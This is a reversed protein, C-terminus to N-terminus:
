KGVFEKLGKTYEKARKEAFYDAGLSVVAEIALAIGLGVWFTKDLNNKFSVILGLGILLLAIEFYRIAVFNKNVKEMRPLEKAKLEGPNLDYAYVNCQRDGDSRKYVTIGVVLHMIGVVFFPIAAGKYWNTKLYFFFILALIIAAVGVIIFLLSENKEAIFYKEIDTKSFM